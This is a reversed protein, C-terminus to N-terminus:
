QRTVNFSFTMDSQMHEPHPLAGDVPGHMSLSRSRLGDGPILSDATILDACDAAPRGQWLNALFPAIRL